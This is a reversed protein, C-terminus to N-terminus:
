QPNCLFLVIEVNGGGIGKSLLVRGARSTDQLHIDCIGRTALENCAPGGFIDDCVERRISLFYTTGHFEDISRELAEIFANGYLDNECGGMNRNTAKWIFYDGISHRICEHHTTKIWANLVNQAFQDNIFRQTPDMTPQQTNLSLFFFIMVTILVMAIALGLIEFQGKRM